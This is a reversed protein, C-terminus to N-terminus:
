KGDSREDSVERTLYQKDFPNTKAFGLLTGKIYENVIYM